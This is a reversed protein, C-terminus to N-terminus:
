GYNEMQGRCDPCDPDDCEEDDESDLVQLRQAFIEMPSVYRLSGEDQPASSNQMKGEIYVPSDKRLHNQAIEAPKGRAVVPIVTTRFGKSDEGNKIPDRTLVQFSAITTGNGSSQRIRPTEVVRGLLTVRNLTMQKDNYKAM